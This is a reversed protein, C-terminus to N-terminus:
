KKKLEMKQRKLFLTGNKDNKKVEQKIRKRRFLICKNNSVLCVFVQGFSVVSLSASPSVRIVNVSKMRIENVKFM